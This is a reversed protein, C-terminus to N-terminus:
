QIAKLALDAGHKIDDLASESASQLQNVREEIKGLEQEIKNVEPQLIENLESQGLKAQIKLEDLRTQWIQMENKMMEVLKEKEM